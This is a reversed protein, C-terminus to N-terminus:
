QRLFYRIDEDTPPTERTPLRWTVGNCRLLLSKGDYLAPLPIANPNGSWLIEGDAFKEASDLLQVTCEDIAENFSIIRLHTVHLVELQDIANVHFVTNFGNHNGAVSSYALGVKGGLKKDLGQMNTTLVKTAAATLKYDSSFTAHVRRTFITDIYSYYIDDLSRGTFNQDKLATNVLLGGKNLWCSICVEDGPQVRTEQLATIIKSAAYFMPEGPANCRQFGTVLYAPPAGLEITKSPKAGNFKRVRYYISIGASQTSTTVGKTAEWMRAVLYDFEIAATNVRNLQKILQRLASTSM